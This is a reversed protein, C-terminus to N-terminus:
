LLWWLLSICLGDLERGGDGDRYGYSAISRRGGGRGGGRGGEFVGAAAAGGGRAAKGSIKRSRDGGGGDDFGFSSVAANQVAAAAVAFASVRGVERDEKAEVVAAGGLDEVGGVDGVGVGQGEDENQVGPPAIAGVVCGVEPYSLSHVLELENGEEGVAHFVGFAEPEPVGGGAAVTLVDSYVVKSVESIEEVLGLAAEGHVGFLDVDHAVRVSPLHREIEGTARFFYSVDLAKDRNRAEAEGGATTDGSGARGQEDV